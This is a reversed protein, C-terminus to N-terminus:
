EQEINLCRFMAVMVAVVISNGFEKYLQSDSNVAKMKSIDDDTVDMLRGCERPILKRIRYRPKELVLNDKAVSTLTNCLGKNNLELRQQTLAGVTRDSPNDPNRGRMAVIQKEVIKPEHNGGSMTSLTPCVGDIDYVRSRSEFKSELTGIVKIEAMVVGLDNNGAKVTRAIPSLGRFFKRTVNTYLSGIVEM